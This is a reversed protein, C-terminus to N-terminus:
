RSHSGRHDEDDNRRRRVGVVILIVVAILVIAVAIILMRISDGTLPILSPTSPPTYTNTFTATYANSGAATLEGGSSSYYKAQEEAITYVIESGSADYRNEVFTHTWSNKESLVTQDVPEDNAYLYVTLTTPWQDSPQSGHDWVKDVTISTLGYSNTITQTYGADASGGVEGYTTLYTDVPTEVAKYLVQTGNQTKPLGTWVHKWTGTADAQLVVPDDVDSWTTGDDISRQLQVTVSTPVSANNGNEWKKNVTFSTPDLTNTIGVTWGDANSGEMDGYTTQYGGVPEEVVTYTIENGSNDYIPVNAFTYAWDDDDNLACTAYTDGNTKLAVNVSAPWDSQAQNGHDWTKNVTINTNKFTNVIDQTYGNAADGTVSGTATSYGDVTNEVARYSIHTGDSGYSPLGTWEYTWNNDADLTRAVDYGNWTTGGDTSQELQVMASTPINADTGHDWKKTVTFTTPVYTNEFGGYGFNNLFNLEDVTTTYGSLPNGEVDTEKISYGDATTNADVLAPWVYYWENADNLIVPNTIDQDLANKSVLDGDKYLWIKISVPQYDAYADGDTWLKIVGVSMYDGANYSNTITKSFGDDASGGVKGTGSVSYGTPVDNEFVYYTLTPDVNEITVTWSGDTETGSLTQTYIPDGTGKANTYVSFIVSQPHTITTAGNMDWVKTLKLTTPVYTNTITQAYGDAVSGTVTATSGSNATTYGTLAAETVYYTKAPDLDTWTHSAGATTDYTVPNLIGAGLVNTAVTAGTNDHLTMQVEPNGTVPTSTTGWAKTVTFSTDILKFSSDGIPAPTTYYAWIDLASQDGDGLLKMDKASNATHTNTFAMAGSSSDIGGTANTENGVEWNKALTWPSTTDGTNSSSNNFYVTSDPSDSGNLRTIIIGNPNQEVDLLPFHVEGGKLKVTINSTTYTGAPVIDGNADRGNWYISNKGSVLTNSLVVTNGTGFNLDIEYSTASVSGVTFGFTGGEGVYGENTGTSSGENGTFIFDSISGSTSPDNIGLASLAAASPTEYFLNYTRDLSTDYPTNNLAIGHSAVDSLTNNDSRIGHYLSTAAGNSTDLLGRNNAFFVFGFSDMGNFDVKYRYGDDTVAYVDSYLSGQSVGGSLVNGGMNIFLTSTFVRGTQLTDGDYVSIDWSAITGGKQTNKFPTTDSVKCKVPNDGNHKQSFFVVTYVGTSPATFTNANTKVGAVYGPTSSSITNSSTVKYGTGSGSRDVGGGEQARDYIYGPTTNTASDDLDILAVGSKGPTMGAGIADAINAYEGQAIYVDATNVYTLQADTYSTGMASNSFLYDSNTGNSTNYLKADAVSTGFYATEGANMYVHMVSLRQQGLTSSNYRETYPRYGGNAVLDSTGEAAAPAPMAVMTFVFAFAMIFTSLVVILATYARFSHSQAMPGGEISVQM